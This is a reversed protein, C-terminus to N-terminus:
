PAECKASVAAESKAAKYRRKSKWPSLTLCRRPPRPNVSPSIFRIPSPPPAPSPAVTCHNYHNFVNKSIGVMDTSVILNSQLFWNSCKSDSHRECQAMSASRSKSAVLISHIDNCQWTDFSMCQQLINPDQMLSHSDHHKPELNM